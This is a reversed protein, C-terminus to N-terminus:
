FFSSGLPKRRAGHYEHGRADRGGGDRALTEGSWARRGDTERPRAGYQRVVRRGREKARLADRAAHGRFVRQVRTAAATLIEEKRAAVRPDNPDMRDYAELARRHSGRREFAAAMAALAALRADSRRRARSTGFASSALDGLKGSEGGGAEDGGGADGGEGEMGRVGSEMGRVGEEDETLEVCRRFAAMSADDRGVDRYLKGLRVWADVNNPDRACALGLHKEADDRRGLEACVEGLTARVESERERGLTDGKSTAARARAVCEELEVVCTDASGGRERRFVAVVAVNEVRVPLTEETARRLCAEAEDSQGLAVFCRHMDCLVDGASISVELPKVVRELHDLARDPQDLRILSTALRHHTASSGVDLATLPQDNKSWGRKSGERKNATQAALDLAADLAFVCEPDRDARFCAEGMALYHAEDLVDAHAEPSEDGVADLAAAFRDCAEDWDGLDVLCRAAIAHLAVADSPDADLGDECVALALDPEGQKRLKLARARASRKASSSATSSRFRSFLGM